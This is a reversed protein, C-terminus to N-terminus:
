VGPLPPLPPVPVTRPALADLPRDADAAAGRGVSGGQRVVSHVSPNGWYAIRGGQAIRADLRRSPRALVVGGQAVSANVAGVDLARLDIAGGSHVTAAIAAQGPFGSAARITGGDAVSLAALSPTTVDLVLRYGHPCHRPCNDIVLRGGAVAIRTNRADGQRFTVRAVPGHRIVIEGGGSLSVESFAAGPLLSQLALLVLTFMM